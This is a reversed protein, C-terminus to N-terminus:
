KLMFFNLRPQIKSGAPHLVDESTKLKSLYKSKISVQYHHSIPKAHIYHLITLPYKSDKWVNNSISDWDWVLILEVNKYVYLVWALFEFLKKKLFFFIQIGLVIYDLSLSLHYKWVYSFM